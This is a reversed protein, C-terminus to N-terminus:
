KQCTTECCCNIDTVFVEQKFLSIAVYTGMFTSQIWCSNGTPMSIVQATSSTTALAGSNIDTSSPPSNSSM